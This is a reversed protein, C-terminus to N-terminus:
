IFFQSSKYIPFPSKRLVLNPDVDILHIIDAYERLLFRPLLMVPILNHLLSELADTYSLSHGPSVGMNSVVGTQPEKRDQGLEKSHEGDEIGPWLLRVGFGAQSIIHLSLRMTDSAVRKITRSQEGSNGVWSKVMSQAQYLSEAWVMHNNKETFPPSTIKRHQRWIQGESSVVNKGYLDVLRYIEVPKPFDNRRTTIQTIVAAEATWLQIGGPAVTMFTDVGMRKFPTYQMEWAWDAPLLDLWPDTLWTPLKRLYPMWIRHTTLWWNSVSYVPVVVYHINSAKAIALNQRLCRITNAVYLFILLLLALVLFSAM